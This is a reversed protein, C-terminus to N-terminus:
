ARHHKAPAHGAGLYKIAGSKAGKERRKVKAHFTNGISDLKTDVFNATSVSV